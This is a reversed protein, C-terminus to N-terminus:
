TEKPGIIALAFSPQPGDYKVNNNGLQQLYVSSHGHDKAHRDIAGILVDVNGKARAAWHVLRQSASLKDREDPPQFETDPSEVTFVRARPADASSAGQVGDADILRARAEVVHQPVDGPM